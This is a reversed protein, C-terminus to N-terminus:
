KEELRPAEFSLTDLCSAELYHLAGSKRVVSASYMEDGLRCETNEENLKEEAPDRISKNITSVASCSASHGSTEERLSM